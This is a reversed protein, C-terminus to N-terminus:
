QRSPWTLMREFFLQLDRVAGYLEAHQGRERAIRSYPFRERQAAELERNREALAVMAADKSIITALVQSLQAQAQILKETLDIQLAAAKQRDRENVLLGAMERATGISSVLLAIDM